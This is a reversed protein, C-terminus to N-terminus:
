NEDRHAATIWQVEPKDAPTALVERQKKKKEEKKEIEAELAPEEATDDTIM